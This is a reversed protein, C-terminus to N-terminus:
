AQLAPLFRTEAGPELPLVLELADVSDAYYRRRLNFCFFGLSTYFARAATNDRRVELLVADAGEARALDMAGTTLARGTGRRQGERPVAVALVHLEETVRLFSLVGLASPSESRADLALLVGGCPRELERQLEFSPDHLLESAEAELERRNTLGALLEGDARVVRVSTM